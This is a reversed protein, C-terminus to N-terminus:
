NTEQGYTGYRRIIKIRNVLNKHRSYLIDRSSQKLMFNIKSEISKDTINSGTMIEFLNKLDINNFPCQPVLYRSYRCVNEIKSMNAEILDLGLYFNVDKYKDSFLQYKIKNKFEQSSIEKAM